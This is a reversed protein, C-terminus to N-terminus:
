QGRVQGYNWGTLPRALERIVWAAAVANTPATGTAAVCGLEAVVARRWGEDSRALAFSFDPRPRWKLPQSGDRNV